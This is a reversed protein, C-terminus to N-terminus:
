AERDCADVLMRDSQYQTFLDRIMPQTSMLMLHRLGHTVLNVLSSM